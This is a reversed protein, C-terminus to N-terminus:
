VRQLRRATLAVSVYRFMGDISQSLFEFQDATLVTKREAIGGGRRDHMFMPRHQGICNRTALGSCLLARCGAEQLDPDFLASRTM